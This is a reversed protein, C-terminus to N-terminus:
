FRPLKVSFDSPLNLPPLELGQPLTLTPLSPLSPLMPLPPVAVKIDPLQVHPVDIGTVRELEQLTPLQMDVHPLDVKSFDPLTFMSHLKDVEIASTIALAVFFGITILVSLSEANTSLNYTGLTVNTTFTRLAADVRDKVAKVGLVALLAPVSWVLAFQYLEHVGYAAGAVLATYVVVRPVNRDEAYQAVADVARLLPLQQPQQQQAPGTKQGNTDRDDFSSSSMM